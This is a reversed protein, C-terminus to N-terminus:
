TKEASDNAEHKTDRFNRMMRAELLGLKRGAHLAEHPTLLGLTIDTYVDNWLVAYESLVREGQSSRKRLEECRTMLARFSETGTQLSFSKPIAPYEYSRM